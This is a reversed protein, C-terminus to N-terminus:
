VVQFYKINSWESIHHWDKPCYYRHDYKETRWHVGDDTRLIDLFRDPEESVKRGITACYVFGPAFRLNLKEFEEIAVDVSDADFSYLSSGEPSGASTDVVVLYKKM